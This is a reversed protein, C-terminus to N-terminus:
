RYLSKFRSFSISEVASEVCLGYAGIQGCGGSNEPLCPSYSEVHYDRADFDCFFPDGLQHGGSGEIGCFDGLNCSLVPLSGEGCYLRELICNSVVPSCAVFAISANGCCISTGAFTCNLFEQPQGSPGNGQLYVSVGQTGWTYNFSFLCFEMRLDSDVVFIAGGGLASSCDEFIVHDLEVSAGTAFLGGGWESDFGRFFSLNEIRLPLPDNEIRAIRYSEMGDLIVDRPSEGLGLLDVGGKLVIPGTYTGPSIEVRDGEEALSLAYQITPYDSPVQLVASSASGAILLLSLFGLKIM